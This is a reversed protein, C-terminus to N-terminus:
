YKRLYVKDVIHGKGKHIILNARERTPLIYENLNPLNVTNWVNEAMEIAKQPEEKAYKYYYNTPDKFATKMLKKFRNLYWTEILKPDADIYISFDTFDGIYLKQHDPIQLTNIGEIILIDPNKIVDYRNPIIDYTQHSYVPAKVEKVGAKIKVLFQILSEMDYSEPFGKRDLIGKEKLIKTPYLFGDTTILQTKMDPLLDTFLYRLLRAATSKGVAVSGSIGIIFPIKPTLRKLFHSETNEWNQYHKSALELLHVLPMYINSVDDLSIQDNFAKLRELNAQTILASENPYFEKWENKSFEYFDKM